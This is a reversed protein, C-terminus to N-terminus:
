VHSYRVGNRVYFGNAHALPKGDFQLGAFGLIAGKCLRFGNTHPLPKTDFFATTFVAECRSAMVVYYHSRTLHLAMLACFLVRVYVSAM